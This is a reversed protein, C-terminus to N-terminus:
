CLMMSITNAFFFYSMNKVSPLLSLPKMKMFSATHGLDCEIQEVWHVPGTSCM